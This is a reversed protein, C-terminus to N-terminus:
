TIAFRRSCCVTSPLSERMSYPSVCGVTQTGSQTDPLNTARWEDSSEAETKSRHRMWEGEFWEHSCDGTDRRSRSGWECRTIVARFAGRSSLQGAWQPGRASRVTEDENAELSMRSPSKPAPRTTSPPERRDYETGSCNAHWCRNQPPPWDKRIRHGLSGPKLPGGTRESM